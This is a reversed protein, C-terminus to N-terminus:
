AGRVAEIPQVQLTEGVPVDHESNDVPELNPTTPADARSRFARAVVLPVTRLVIALDLGVSWNELYFLDLRRYPSFDPNDRAEVQWLGTIGPRITHRAKLGDDFQVNEAPLAPRPGVLSMTGTLVNFFQPLEDISSARRFRGVKLVRPDDAAKFLPGNRANLHGVTEAEQEAGTRMTRFKYFTFLRGDRGVREQRYLVPGRSTFRIALAAAVFVPSLVVVGLFALSLDLVRKMCVQGQSPRHPEVYFVAEYGLPLPRLRQQAIGFLGSSLHIHTGRELLERTLQNLAQPPVATAAILVGQIGREDLIEPLQWIEGFRPLAPDGALTPPGVYGALRYGLEPQSRLLDVLSGAEDNAGVLVLSRTYMGAARKNKLWYGFVGRSASVVCFLVVAGAAWSWPATDRTVLQEALLGVLGVVLAVRGIRTLEVSRVQCIRAEFLHQWAFLVLTVAALGAAAPIVALMRDSIGTAWLVLLWAMFSSVFDLAVLRSRLTTGPVRASRPATTVTPAFQATSESVAM